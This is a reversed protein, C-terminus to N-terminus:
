HHGYGDGTSMQMGVFPHGPQTPRPLESFVFIIYMRSRNGIETSVYM